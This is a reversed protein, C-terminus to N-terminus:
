EQTLPDKEFADDLLRDFNKDSEAKLARAKLIENAIETAADTVRNRLATQMKGHAYNALLGGRSSAMVMALHGRPMTEWHFLMADWAAVCVGTGVGGRRDEWGIFSLELLHTGGDDSVSIGSQRFVLEAATKLASPNRLCGDKVQDTVFVYIKDVFRMENENIYAQALVAVPAWVLIIAALFLRTMARTM